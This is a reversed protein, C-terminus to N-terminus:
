LGRDAHSKRDFSRGSAMGNQSKSCGGRGSPFTRVDTPIHDTHHNATAHSRTAFLTPFDEGLNKYVEAGQTVFIDRPPLGPMTSPSPAVAM